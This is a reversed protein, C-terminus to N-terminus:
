VPPKEQSDAPQIRISYMRINYAKLAPQASDLINQELYKMPRKFYEDPQSLNDAMLKIRHYLLSQLKKYGENTKHPDPGIVLELYVSLNIKGAITVPYSSRMFNISHM